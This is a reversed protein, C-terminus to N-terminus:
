HIVPNFTEMAIRLVRSGLLTVRGRFRTEGDDTYEFQYERWVRWQKHQDRSLSIKLQHVTQDLLQVECRQSEQSAARVALEKARMSAQWYLVFVVVGFIMLLEIMLFVQKSVKMTAIKPKRCLQVIFRQSSQLLRKVLPEFHGINRTTRLPPLATSHVPRSFWCPTFGKWPEFGQGEAM